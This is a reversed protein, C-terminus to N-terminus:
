ARLKRLEDRIYLYPLVLLGLPILDGPNYGQLLGWIGGTGLLAAGAAGRVVVGRRAHRTEEAREIAGASAESLARKVAAESLGAQVAADAVEDVSLSDSIAADLQAARAFVWSAEQRTLREAM